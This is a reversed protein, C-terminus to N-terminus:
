QRYFPILETWLGEGNSMVPWTIVSVPANRPLCHSIFPSCVKKKLDQLLFGGAHGNPGGVRNVRISSGRLGRTNIASDVNSPAKGSDVERYPAAMRLLSGIRCSAQQRTRGDAGSFLCDMCGIRIFSLASSNPECTRVLQWVEDVGDEPVQLMPTTIVEYGVHDPGDATRYKFKIPLKQRSWLRSTIINLKITKLVERGTSNDLMRCQELLVTERTVHPKVLAFDEERLREPEEIKVDFCCPCDHKWTLIFGRRDEAQPTVELVPVFDLLLQTADPISKTAALAGWPVTLLAKFVAKEALPFSAKKSVQQTRSNIAHAFLQYCSACRYM